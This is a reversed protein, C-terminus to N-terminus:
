VGSTCNRRIKPCLRSAIAMPAFRTVMPSNRCSRMKRMLWYEPTKDNVERKGLEARYQVTKKFHEDTVQLYHKNAIAVSNGLWASVVHAPYEEVMETQRTAWLNHILKPWGPPNGTAPSAMSRMLNPSSMAHWCIRCCNPSFRCRVPQRGTMHETKPSHMLFKCEARGVEQCQLGVSFDIIGITRLRIAALSM